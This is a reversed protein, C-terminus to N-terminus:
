PCGANYWNIFQVVDFFNLQGFPAAVDAPCLNQCSDLVGDANTDLSPDSAIECSDPIFNDNCDADTGDRIGVFDNVSNGNCDDNGDGVTPIVRELPGIDVPPLLMQTAGTDAVALDQTFRPNGLFDFPYRDNILGDMDLDDVDLRILLNSGADIAPSGPLLSWDENSPDAILPDAVINGAGPTPVQTICHRINPTPVSIPNSPGNNWFITNFADITSVGSIAAGTPATNKLFLCSEFLSLSNSTRVAGGSEAATNNYFICQFMAEVSGDFAGGFGNVSPSKGTATNGIFICRDMDARTGSIAGGRSATNNRFVCDEFLTTRLGNQLLVAGGEGIASNNEFVCRILTVNERVEIAGGRDASNNRFQTDSIVYNGGVTDTSVAAGQVTGPIIPNPIECYEIICSRITGSNRMLIGAGGVFPFSTIDGQDGRVTLGEVLSGDRVRIAPGTGPAGRADIITSEAGDTGILSLGSARNITSVREAYTGPAILIRDGNSAADVAAQITPFQCPVLLDAALAALSIQLVACLAIFRFM